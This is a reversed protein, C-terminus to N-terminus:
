AAESPAAARLHRTHQDVFDDATVKGGTAVRIALLAEAKPFRDGNVYRHLTQVGLGSQRAFATLTMGEDALYAKLEM